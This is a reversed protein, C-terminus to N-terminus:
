AVLHHQVTDKQEKCWDQWVSRAEEASQFTCLVVGDETMLTTMKSPWEKIYFIM